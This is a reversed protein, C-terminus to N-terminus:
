IEALQATGVLSEAKVLLPPHVETYGHERTHLDLLFNILARELRAGLGIYVVFASGTIKSAREFDFLRLKEGLTSTTRRRSLQVGAERGVRAGRSEAGRTRRDAGRRAASEAHQLLLVRQASELQKAEDELKGIEEGMARVEAETAATDEGRARKGGIEKSMRKRDAQLQQFRTEAARRRVDCELIQDVAAPLSADRTALRAKVHDPNERILRIDLMPPFSHLGEAFPLTGDLRSQVPSGFRRSVNVRTM